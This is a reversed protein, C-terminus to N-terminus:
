LLFPGQYLEFPIHILSLVVNRYMTEFCLNIERSFSEKPSKTLTKTCNWVTMTFIQGRGKSSDIPLGVPKCAVLLSHKPAQLKYFHKSAPNRHTFKHPLYSCM